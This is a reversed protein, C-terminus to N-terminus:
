SRRRHFWAQQQEFGSHDSPGRQRSAAEFADDLNEIAQRTNAQQIEERRMLELEVGAQQWRRVWQRMVKGDRKIKM